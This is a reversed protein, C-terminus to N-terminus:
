LKGGGSGQSARLDAMGRVCCLTAGVLGFLTRSLTKSGLLGALLEDYGAVDDEFLSASEPERPVIASHAAVM